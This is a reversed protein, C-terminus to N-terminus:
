NMLLMSFKHSAWNTISSSYTVVYADSGYIIVDECESAIINGSNDFVPLLYQNSITAGYENIDIFMLYPTLVSNHTVDMPLILKGNLYKLGQLEGYFKCPYYNLITYTGDFEGDTVGLAIRYVYKDKNTDYDSASEATIAYVINNSEGFCAVVGEGEIDSLTIAVVNSDSVGINQGQYVVDKANKVLYIAPTVGSTATGNAM